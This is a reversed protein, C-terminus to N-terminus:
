ARKIIMLSEGYKYGLKICLFICLLIIIVIIISGPSTLAQLQKGSSIAIIIITKGQKTYMCTWRVITDDGSVRGEDAVGVGSTSPNTARSLSLVRLSRQM